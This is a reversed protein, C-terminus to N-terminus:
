EKALEGNSIENIIKRGAKLIRNKEGELEEIRAQQRECMEALREARIFDRSGLRINQLKLVEGKDSM